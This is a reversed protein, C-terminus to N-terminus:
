IEGIKKSLFDNLSHADSQIKESFYVLTKIEPPTNHFEKITMDNIYQRSKLQLLMEHQVKLLPISKFLDFCADYYEFDNVQPLFNFEKLLINEFENKRLINFMSKYSLKKEYKLAKKEVHLTNRKTLVIIGVSPIIIHKKISEVHSQDTVINCFSFASYYSDIQKNLRKLNDLETKIEYVQGVGNIILFDLINGNVPLEKLATSTKLSHRGLLIKNFLVNKYLYENRHKLSLYKYATTLVQSNTLENPEKILLHALKKYATTEHKYILKNFSNVTFFNNLLVETNSM